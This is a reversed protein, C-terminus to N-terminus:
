TILSSSIHPIYVRSRERPMEVIGDCDSLPQNRQSSQSKYVIARLMFMNKPEWSRDQVKEGDSNMCRGQWQYQLIGALAVKRELKLRLKMERGDDDRLKGLVDCVSMMLIEVGRSSVRTM